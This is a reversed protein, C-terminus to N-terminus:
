RSGASWKQFATPSPGAVLGTVPALLPNVWGLEAIENKREKPSFVEKYRQNVGHIGLRLAGCQVTINSM